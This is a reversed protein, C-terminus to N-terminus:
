SQVRAIFDRLIIAAAESDVERKSENEDLGAAKLDSNAAFTTLREDQLYIPVSLSRRFKEAVARVSEAATGEGGDLRLPLGIVLGKAEFSQVLGAVQRVLEKWNRRSIMPLPRTTIRLEDSVAVGIRKAGLDLALLRGPTELPAPSSAAIKRPEELQTFWHAGLSM